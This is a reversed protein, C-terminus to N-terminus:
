YCSILRLDVGAISVWPVAKPFSLLMGDIRVLIWGATSCTFDVLGDASFKTSKTTFCFTRFVWASIRSFLWMTFSCMSFPTRAMWVASYERSVPATLTTSYASTHVEESNSRQLLACITTTTTCYNNCEPKLSWNVSSSMLVFSGDHSTGPPRWVGNAM